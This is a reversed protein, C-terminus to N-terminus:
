YGSRIFWGADMIPILKGGALVGWGVPEKRWTLVLYIKKDPRRVEYEDEGLPKGHTFRIEGGRSLVVCSEGLEELFGALAYALAMSPTFRGREVRGALIGAALLDSREECPLFEDLFIALDKTLCFLSYNDGTRRCRMVPCIVRLADSSLGIDRMFTLFVRKAEESCENM